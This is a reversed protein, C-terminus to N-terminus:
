QKKIGAVIAYIDNNQLRVKHLYTINPIPCLMAFRYEWCLGVSMINESM